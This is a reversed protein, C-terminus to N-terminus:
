LAADLRLRQSPLGRVGLGSVRLVRGDASGPPTVSAKASTVYLDSYNEGGWCLSTPCKCPLELASMVEGSAPDVRLLKSGFYNAIWLKGDADIAMGDFFNKDPGYPDVEHQLIVKRDSIQGSAADYNFKDLTLKLTDIYYFSEESWALGNSLQIKDVMIAPEMKPSFRYLSGVADFKLEGSAPFPGMTGAWLRGRADCKADNFRNGEKGEDVTALVQVKQKVVDEDEATWRLLGVACGLGVVWEAPRGEVGVVFSVTSGTPHAEVDLRQCRGTQTWYRWLRGEFIDVYVLSKTEADWFPAEGLTCQDVFLETICAM